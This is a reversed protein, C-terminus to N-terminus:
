RVAQVYPEPDPGHPVSDAVDEPRVTECAAAFSVPNPLEAMVKWGPVGFRFREHALRLGEEETPAWAFPVETWTREPDGGREVWGDVVGKEPENFMMGDVGARQAMDLSAPGSVGAVLEVPRDPLDFIRADVVTLH